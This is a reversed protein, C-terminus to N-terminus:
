SVSQHKYGYLAIQLCIYFGIKLSKQKQIVIILAKLKKISQELNAAHFLFFWFYLIKKSMETKLYFYLM